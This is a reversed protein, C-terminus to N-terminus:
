EWSALARRNAEKRQRIVEPFHRRELNAIFKKVEIALKARELLKPFANEAGAEIVDKPTIEALSNSYTRLLGWAQARDDEAISRHLQTWTPFKEKVEQAFAAPFRYGASWDSAEYSKPYEIKRV